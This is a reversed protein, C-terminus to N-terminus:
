RKQRWEECSGSLKVKKGKRECHGGKYTPKCEACNKCIGKMNGETMDTISLQRHCYAFDRCQECIGPILDPLTCNDATRTDWNSVKM